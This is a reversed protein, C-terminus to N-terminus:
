PNQYFGFNTRTEEVPGVHTTDGIFDIFYKGM